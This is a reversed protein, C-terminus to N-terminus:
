RKSPKPRLVPPLARLAARSIKQDASNTLAILAEYHADLHARLARRRPDGLPGFYVKKIANVTANLDKVTKAVPTAILDDAKQRVKAVRASPPKPMPTIRRQVPLAGAV